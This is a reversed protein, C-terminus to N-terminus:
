HGLARRLGVAREVLIAAALAKCFDVDHGAYKGSKDPASFGTLGTHVGCVLTGRQKIADLTPGAVATGAVPRLLWAPVLHLHACAGPREVHEVRRARLGHM